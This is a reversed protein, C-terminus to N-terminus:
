RFSHSKLYPVKKSSWKIQAFFHANQPHIKECCGRTAASIFMAWCCMLLHFNRFPLLLSKIPHAM